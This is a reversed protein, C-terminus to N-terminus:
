IKKMWALEELPTITESSSWKYQISWKTIARRTSYNCIPGIFNGKEDFFVLTPYASIKMARAFEHMSNRGKSDAIYGPNKFVKDQYVVTDNGEANFKVPYFNENLYAAVDPNSFTNRDLMKCPGCWTTYADVFIKKPEKKQAELAETMSMWQVKQASVLQGTFLVFLLPLIIRKM